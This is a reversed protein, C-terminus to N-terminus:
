PPAGPPHSIMVSHSVLACKMSAHAAYVDRASSRTSGTMLIGTEAVLKAQGGRREGRSIVHARTCLASIASHVKWGVM